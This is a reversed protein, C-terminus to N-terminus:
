QMKVLFFIFYNFTRCLTINVPFAQENMFIHKGNVTHTQTLQCNPLIGTASWATQCEMKHKQHRQHHRLQRQQHCVRAESLCGAVFLLLSNTAQWGTEVATLRQKDKHLVMAYRLKHVCSGVFSHTYTHKTKKKKQQQLNCIKSARRYQNQWIWAACACSHLRM